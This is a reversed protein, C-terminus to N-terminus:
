VSQTLAYLLVGTAVSVNLSEAGNMAIKCVRDAKEFVEDSVGKDESGIVLVTPVDFAINEIREANYLASVLIQFNSNKLKELTNELNIVRAIKAKLINGASTKISESNIQASNKTGIIIGDVGFAVCTRAIAGFNRVDTVGDLMVLLPKTKKISQLLEDLTFYSVPSILAVVGQHTENTYSHIKEPPIHQLPIKQFFAERAIQSLIDASLGKQMFIREVSVSKSLLAELVPKRGYIIEKETQM